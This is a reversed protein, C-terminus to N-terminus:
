IHMPDGVSDFKITEPVSKAAHLLVCAGVRLSHCTYRQIDEKDTIDYTTVAVERLHKEMNVNMIYKVTNHKAGAAHVALPGKTDVKLRLAQFAINLITRVPCQDLKNLNKSYTM